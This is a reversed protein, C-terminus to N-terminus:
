LGEKLLDHLHIVGVLQKRNTNNIPSLIPLATIKKTELIKLADFALEDVTGTTFAKTMVESIPTAYIDVTKAIIRRLDGDTFIGQLEPTPSNPNDVILVCGLGKNSMTLLCDSILTEKTVLPLQDGTRMIQANTTLLRRGLAGFPHSNAFDASSFNRKDILAVVIADGLVLSNTTSSTPALKLPCAEQTVNLLLTVTANQALTSEPNNTIAIVKVQERKFYLSLTNFEISEGSNSIYIVLDNGSIMGADGHGAETPHVFFSSTGTSALSAAIKKAIHGSKGVGMVVVKGTCNYVLDCAQIFEPSKITAELNELQQKEINLASLASTQYLNTM